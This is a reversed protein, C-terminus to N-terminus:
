GATEMLGDEFVTGGAIGRTCAVQTDTLGPYKKHATETDEYKLDVNDKAIKEIYGSVERAGRRSQSLGSKLIENWEYYGVKDRDGGLIKM